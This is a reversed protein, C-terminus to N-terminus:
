EERRDHRPRDNRDDADREQRHGHGPRAAAIWVGLAEAGGSVYGQGERDQEHDQEDVAEEPAEHAPDRHEEAQDDTGDDGGDQPYRVKSLDAFRSEQADGRRKM